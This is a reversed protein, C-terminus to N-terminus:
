PGQKQGTVRDLFRTVERTYRAPDGARLQYHTGKEIPVFRYSKVKAHRAIRRGHEFPIIEDKRGHIHLVPVKIREMSNEPSVKGPDFGAVKGARDMFYPGLEAVPLSTHNIVQQRAVDRLDAFTNEIIAFDFEPDIGMAQLAVAGGYSTGWLGIPTDPFERETAKRLESLDLKEVYGYTVTNGGSTGHARFDPAIGVIGRKALFDLTGAQTAKSDSIGHLVFIVALPKEEPRAMWARLQVKDKMVFVREAMGAPVKADTGKRKPHLIADTVMRDVVCCSVLGLGVLVLCAIKLSRWFRAHRGAASTRQDTKM